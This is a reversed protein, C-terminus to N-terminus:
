HLNPLQRDIIKKMDGNYKMLPIKSTTSKDGREKPLMKFLKATGKGEEQSIADRFYVLM